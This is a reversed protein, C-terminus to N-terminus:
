PMEAMKPAKRPCWLAGLTNNQGLFLKQPDPSPKPVIKPSFSKEFIKRNKSGSRASLPGLWRPRATDRALCPTLPQNVIPQLARLTRKLKPRRRFITIKRNRPDFIRFFSTNEDNKAQFHCLRPAFDAMPVDYSCMGFSQSPKPFM